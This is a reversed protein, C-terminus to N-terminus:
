LKHNYFPSFIFVDCVASDNDKFTFFLEKYVSFSSLLDVEAGHRVRHGEWLSSPSSWSIGLVSQKNQELSIAWKM